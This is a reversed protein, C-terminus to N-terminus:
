HLDQLKHPRHVLAEHDNKNVTKLKNNIVGKDVFSPHEMANQNITRIVPDRCMPLDSLMMYGDVSSHIVISTGSCCSM